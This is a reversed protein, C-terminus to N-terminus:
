CNDFYDKLSFDGFGAFNLQYSIVSLQYSFFCGIEHLPEVFELTFHHLFCDLVSPKIYYVFSTNIYNSKFNKGPKSTQPVCISIHRYSHSILNVIKTFLLLKLWFSQVGWCSQCFGPFTKVADTPVRGGNSFGTLSPSLAPPNRMFSEFNLRTQGNTIQRRLPRIFLRNRLPSRLLSKRNTLNGSNTLNNM